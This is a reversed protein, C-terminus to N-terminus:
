DGRHLGARIQIGLATVADTVDLACRVARVPDVFTAYFGDGATDNEVGDWRHLAARVLRNHDLLLDRWGVDGLRAQIATSGVIDTFLVTRVGTVVPTTM